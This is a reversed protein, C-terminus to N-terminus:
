GWPPGQILKIQHLTKNIISIFNKNEEVQDNKYNREFHSGLQTGRRYRTEGFTAVRSSWLSNRAEFNIHDEEGCSARDRPALKLRILCNMASNDRNEHGIRKQSLFKQGSQTGPPSSTKYDDREIKETLQSTGFGFFM